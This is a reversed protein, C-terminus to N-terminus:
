LIRFLILLKAVRYNRGWSNIHWQLTEKGSLSHFAIWDKLPLENLDVLIGLTYQIDTLRQELAKQQAKCSTVMRTGFLIGWLGKLQGVLPQCKLGLNNKWVSKLILFIKSQGTM